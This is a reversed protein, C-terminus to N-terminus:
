DCGSCVWGVRRDNADFDPRVDSAPYLLGCTSCRRQRGPATRKERLVSLALREDAQSLRNEPAM